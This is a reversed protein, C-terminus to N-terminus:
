RFGGRPIAPIVKLTNQNYVKKLVSDCPGLRHMKWFAHRDRYCGFSQEEM